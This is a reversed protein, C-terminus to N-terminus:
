EEQVFSLLWRIGDITDKEHQKSAEWQPYVTNFGHPLGAYVKLKTKVGDVERLRKEYILANDRFADRGHVQFFVPPLGQHGTPWLFPSVLPDKPDGATFRHFMDIGETSLGGSMDQDWSLFEAKYEEPIVSAHCVSTCIELLGTIPPGLKEDRGLHGVIDTLHGGGSPGEVIFGNRPDAGLESAHQAAWKVVDWCDKAATPSKHEPALRYDINVCSAGFEKVFTRCHGEEDTLGGICLGGGHIAIILPGPASSATPRYTRIPIAYGDRAPVTRSEITIGDASNPGFSALYTECASAYLQRIVNVDSPISQRPSPNADLFAKFEPNPDALKLLEEPARSVSDM